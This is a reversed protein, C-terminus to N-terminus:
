RNSSSSVTGNEVKIIGTSSNYIGYSNIYNGGSSSVTGDEVKIIGTSANYIGYSKKDYAYNSSSVTGGRMIINGNENNCIGVLTEISDIKGEKNDTLDEITLNGTNEIKYYNNTITHGNLNLTIDKNFKITENEEIEFDRIVEITTEEEGISDVARQLSYYKTDEIQVIYEASNKEVLYISEKEDVTNKEIRYEERIKTINGLLAIDGQMTGSYFEVSGFENYIGYGKYYSSTANCEGKINPIKQSISESEKTGIIVTGTNNNYIGYIDGYGRSSVTGETVTVNGTSANYIGYKISNITGGNVAIKGTNLNYIGCYISGNLNGGSIEVNGTSANYIGYSSGSGSTSCNLTGGAMKITGTSANYIGYSARRSSNNIKISGERIEVRGISANYIGYGYSNTGNNSSVTGGILEVIGTSANYIGYSTNRNNGSSSSSSSVTGGIVQVTGTSENYIGSSNISGSSGSIRSSITGGTVQVTGTSGNYIGYCRSTQSNTINGTQEISTDTIELQGYNNIVRDKGSVITLEYSDLDLMMNRSVNIELINRLQINKIITVTEKKINKTADIAKQVTTYYVWEIRAEYGSVIGLQMTTIGNSYGTSVPGYEDPTNTVKGQIPTIGQIKGDYFNFTGQNNIGVKYGYITPVENEISTSNDGITFTGNNLIATGNLSELKGTKETSTDIIQLVGNNTCIPTDQKSSGVTKGNLDLIINQGEYILFEEDTSKIIKITTQIEGAEKSCAEIAEQITLYKTEGIQAVPEQYKINYRMQTLEAKNGAKDTVNLYLNYQGIGLKTKSITIENYFDVYVIEEGEAGWAYQMKDLGSVGTDIATIALNIDATGNEDIVIYNTETPSVTATPKEKDINNVEIQQEETIIGSENLTRAYIIKNETVLVEQMYQEAEKWETGNESYQRIIEETYPYTIKVTVDKNTYETPLAEMTINAVVPILITCYKQEVEYDLYTYLMHNERLNAVGRYATDKTNSIMVGNYFNFSYTETNMYIGYNAGYIAPNITSLEDEQRGITIKETNTSYIGYTKGEIRGGYINTTGYATVGYAGTGIVKGGTMELTSSSGNYIGYYGTIKGGNLYLKVTTRSYNYVGYSSSNSYTAEISGGNVNLTGYYNYIGRYYGNIQVNDNINIVASSSNNYIPAYSTSTSMNEITLSNSVTLTGNNTITNVNNAETTIKGNGTIEVTKGSSINITANRTLIYNQVDFTVSKNITAISTDTYDNLLKITSGDSAKSIAQELTETYITDDILYNASGIVIKQKESINGVNDKVWLYYTTNTNLGEITFENSLQEIWTSSETPETEETSIYYGKIGSGEDKAKIESTSNTQNLIEYSADEIVPAKKDIKITTKNGYKSTENQEGEYVARVYIEKEIDEMLKFTVTNDTKVYDFFNIIRILADSKFNISNIIFTDQNSNVSGDKRYGIHLYYKQGGALTTTHDATTTTGSVYIFRGTTSNYVPATTSDTITAYGFDCNSESSITANITIDLSVEPYDTLDIEIYNNATKSNIGSNNPKLTGDEQVEFYYTGNNTLDGIWDPKNEITGFDDITYDVSTIVQEASIDYWIIGNYSYQYKEVRQGTSSTDIEGYLDDKTWTGDYIAGSEDNHKLALAPVVKDIRITYTNEASNGAEDTTRVIVTYEGTETLTTPDTLPNNLSDNYVVGDKKITYTTTATGNDDTGDVKEIYVSKDTWLSKSLDYDGIENGDDDLEKAILTGATPATKDINTVEVKNSQKIEGDSDKAWFYYTGNETVTITETIETKNSVSTWSSAENTTDKTFAYGVITATNGEKIQATGTLTVEGNTWTDNQPNQSLTVAMSRSLNEYIEDVRSLDKAYNEQIQTVEQEQVQLRNLNSIYVGTLIFVFFLCTLLVFLTIAGNENKKNFIRKGM